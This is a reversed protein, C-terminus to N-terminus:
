IRVPSDIPKRGPRNPKPSWCIKWSRAGGRRVRIGPRARRSGVSSSGTISLSPRSMSNLLKNAHLNYNADFSDNLSAECMRYFGDRLIQITANRKGIESAAESLATGLSGAGEGAGTLGVSLATAFSSSIASLADPSPEACFKQIEREEGDYRRASIITRQKADIVISRDDGSDIDFTRFVATDNATCAALFGAAALCYIARFM